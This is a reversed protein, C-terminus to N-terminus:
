RNMLSYTGHDRTAQMLCAAMKVMREVLSRDFDKDSLIIQRLVHSNEILSELSVESSIIEHKGGLDHNVIHRRGIADNMYRMLPADTGHM